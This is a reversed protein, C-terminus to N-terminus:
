NENSLAWFHCPLETFHLFLCGVPQGHSCGRGHAAVSTKARNWVTQGHSCGHAHGARNRVRKRSLKRIRSPNQSERGYLFAKWTNPLSLPVYVCICAWLWLKEDKSSGYALPIELLLCWPNLATSSQNTRALSIWWWLRSNRDRDRKIKINSIDNYLKDILKCVFM